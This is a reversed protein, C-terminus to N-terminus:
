HMWVNYSNELESFLTVKESTLILCWTNDGLAPRISNYWSVVPSNILKMLTDEELDYQIHIGRLSLGNFSFM